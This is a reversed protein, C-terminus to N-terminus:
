ALFQKPEIQHYNFYEEPLKVSYETGPVNWQFIIELNEFPVHALKPRFELSEKPIFAPIINEKKAKLIQINKTFQIEDKAEHLTGAYSEIISPFSIGEKYMRYFDEAYTTIGVNSGEPRFVIGHNQQGNKYVMRFDITGKVEETVFELIQKKLEEYFMDFDM